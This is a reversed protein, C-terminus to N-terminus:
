FSLGEPTRGTEGGPAACVEFAGRYYEESPFWVARYSWGWAM